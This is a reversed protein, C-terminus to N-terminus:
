RSAARHHREHEHVVAGIEEWERAAYLLSSAGAGGVLLILGGLELLLAPPSAAAGGPDLSRAVASGAYLVLAGLVSAADLRSRQRDDDPVDVSEAAAAALGVAGFLVALVCLWLSAIVLGNTDRPGWGGWSMLDLVTIALGLGLAINAVM